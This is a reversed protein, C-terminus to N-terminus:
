ATPPFHFTFKNIWFTSFYALDIGSIFGDDNFDCQSDAGDTVFKGFNSCFYMLDKGDVMAEKTTLGDVCIGIFNGNLKWVVNSYDSELNSLDYATVVFQVGELVQDEYIEVNATTANPDTIKLFEIVGTPSCKYYVIYGALDIETNAKWSLIIVKKAESYRFGSLIALIALTLILVLRRL